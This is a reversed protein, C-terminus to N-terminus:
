ALSSREVEGDFLRANNSSDLANKKEFCLRVPIQMGYLLQGPLGRTSPSHSLSSLGHSAHPNYRRWFPDNAM